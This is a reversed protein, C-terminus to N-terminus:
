IVPTSLITARIPRFARIDNGATTKTAPVQASNGSPVAAAFADGVCARLLRVTAVVPESLPLQWDLGQL